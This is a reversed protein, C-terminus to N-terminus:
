TESCREETSEHAVTQRRLPPGDRAISQPPLGHMERQPGHHRQFPRDRNRVAQFPPRDTRHPIGTGNWVTACRM